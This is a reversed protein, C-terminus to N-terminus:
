LFGRLLMVPAADRRVVCDHIWAGCERLPSQSATHPPTCSNLLSAALQLLNLRRKCADILGNRMATLVTFGTIPYRDFRCFLSRVSGSAVAKGKRGCVQLALAHVRTHALSRTHTHARPRTHATHHPTAPLGPVSRAIRRLHVVSMMRRHAALTWNAGRRDKGEDVNRTRRRKSERPTDRTKRTTREQTADKALTVGRKTM